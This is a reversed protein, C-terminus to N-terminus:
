GFSRPSLKLDSDWELLSGNVVRCWADATSKVPKNGFIISVKDDYVNCVRCPGFRLSSLETGKSYSGEEKLSAVPTSVLDSSIRSAVRGLDNVEYFFGDGAHADLFMETAETQQIGSLHNFGFRHKM